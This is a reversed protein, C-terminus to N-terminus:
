SVIYPGKRRAGSFSRDNANPESRRSVMALGANRVAREWFPLTIDQYSRILHSLLTSSSDLEDQQVPRM